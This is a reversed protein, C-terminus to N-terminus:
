SQKWKAISPMGWVTESATETVETLARLWEGKTTVIFTKSQLYAERRKRAILRAKNKRKSMEEGVKDGDRNPM